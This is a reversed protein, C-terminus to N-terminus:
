GRNQVLCDILRAIDDETHDYCLSVRLLSEGRPVSPPRIGPVLFGAERAADALRMTQVPDGILIPVIQSASNGTEFGAEALQQRLCAARTRLQTRRQPESAVIDLAALAAAAAAAPPATSFVYTRARNALWDILQRSGCVFGGVSGLAKSLTGVRITVAQEIAAARSNDAPLVRDAFHEGVGRGRTGWVGTAHAEDIMLMANHECALKALQDVPAFDGDMSFLSDTVILRRRCGSAERLMAELAAMDAHPYVWRRARSLRCGDIISAHNKADGLVADQEDVLVPIVGANAAFGTPFLLASETGELEALRQELREHWVSRGTVLPSAGSGWGVDRTAQAAAEALRPDNALGLYDNASFNVLRQGDQQVVASQPGPRSRLTRRLGQQQLQSLEDDIWGLPNM